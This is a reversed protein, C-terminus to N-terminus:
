LRVVPSDAYAALDTVGRKTTPAVSDTRPMKRAETKAWNTIAVSRAMTPTEIGPLATPPDSAHGAEPPTNWTRWFALKSGRILSPGLLQFSPAHSDVPSTAVIRTVNRWITLAASDATSRRSM